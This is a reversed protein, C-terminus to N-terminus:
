CASCPAAEGDPGVTSYLHGAHEVAGRSKNSARAASASSWRTPRTGDHRSVLLAESRPSKTSPKKRKRAGWVPNSVGTQQWGACRRRRHEHLSPQSAQRGSGGFLDLVRDGPKTHCAIFLAVSEAAIKTPYSFANYLPGRRSAALPSEYLGSLSDAVPIARGLEPKAARTPRIRIEDGDDSLAFHVQSGADLHLHRLLEVPICVQRVKTLTRPGYWRLDEEAM